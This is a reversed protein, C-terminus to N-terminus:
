SDEMTENRVRTQQSSLRALLKKKLHVNKLGRLEEGRSDREPDERGKRQSLHM